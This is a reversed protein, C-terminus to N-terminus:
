ETESYRRRTRRPNEAAKNEAADKNKEWYQIYADLDRTRSFYKPFYSPSTIVHKGSLYEGASSYRYDLASSALYRLEHAEKTKWNENFLKAPNLHIYAYLYKLYEDRDAHTAKYTGQFLSGDRVYKDNFYMTYATQLKQMFKPIGDEVLPTALIHFHNPMLCYAGIAVLQESRASHFLERNRRGNFFNAARPNESDNLIYLYAEFRDYDIQGSFTIRKDVGRNYLHYFEKEKFEMRRM